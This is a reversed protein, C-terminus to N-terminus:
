SSMLEFWKPFWRPATIKKPTSNNKCHAKKIHQKKRFTGDDRGTYTLVTRSAFFEGFEWQRVADWQMRQTNEKKAESCEVGCEYIIRTDSYLHCSRIPTTTSTILHSWIHDFHSWFFFGGAFFVYWMKWNVILCIKLYRQVKL